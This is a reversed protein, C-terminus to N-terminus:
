TVLQDHITTLASSKYPPLSTTPNAKALVFPKENTEHVFLAISVPELHLSEPIHDDEMSGIIWWRSICEDAYVITDAWLQKKIMEGSSTSKEHVNLKKKFPVILSEPVPVRQGSIVSLRKHPPVYAM